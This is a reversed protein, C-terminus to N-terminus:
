RANVLARWRHTNEWKEYSININTLQVIAFYNVQLIIIWNILWFLKICLLHYWISFDDVFFNYLEDLDIVKIKTMKRYLLKQVTQIKFKFIHCSWVVNEFVLHNWNFFNDVVFNFLEDVDIVKIKTIKRYLM